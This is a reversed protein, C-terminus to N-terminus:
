EKWSIMEEIQQSYEKILKQKAEFDAIFDEEQKIYDVQTHLESSYETINGRIDALLASLWKKFSETHSLEIEKCINNVYKNLESNFTRRLKDLRIKESDGIFLNGFRIGSLFDDKIFIEDAKNDFQIDGYEIIIKKL